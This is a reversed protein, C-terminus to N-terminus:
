VSARDRGRPKPAETNRPSEDRDKKKVVVVEVKEKEKKQKQDDFTSADRALAGTCLMGTLIGSLIARNFGRKM